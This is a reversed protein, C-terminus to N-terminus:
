MEEFSFSDDSNILFMPVFVDSTHFTISFLPLHDPDLTSQFSSILEMKKKKHEEVVVCVVENKWFSISFPFDSWWCAIYEVEFLIQLM